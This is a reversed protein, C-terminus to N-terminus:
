HLHTRTSAFQWKPLKYVARIVLSTTQATRNASKYPHSVHVIVVLFIVFNCDNSIHAYRFIIFIDQLSFLVFSPTRFHCVFQKVYNWCYLFSFNGVKTVHDSTVVDAPQYQLPFYSSSPWSRPPHCIDVFAAPSDM